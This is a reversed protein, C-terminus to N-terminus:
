IHHRKDIDIYSVCTFGNKFTYEIKGEDYVVGREVLKMFYEDNFESKENISDLIKMLDMNSENLEFVAKDDKLRLLMRMFADKIKPEQQRKARCPNYGKIRCDRGSTARCRWVSIKESRGGGTLVATRRTVPQGCLGCFLRNSIVSVSSHSQRYRRDSVTSIEFRRKIEEQVANWEDRPIIAPHHNEIYYMPLQGKNEKQKNTMFDVKYSKQMLVDGCYKENRLMHMVSSKGWNVTGRGTIIGESKLESAILKMGKGKMYERYVRRVTQAEQENIILNGHEDKDYGLLFNVPCRPLGEQFRKRIGWKVNESLNRSEEQAITSLITLILENKSDLTHLKEKEFYVGVPPKLSKLQRIHELCDITNRAFRSISKTFILDIKGNKCDNIMKLFESREGTSTGSKGCDAYIGAFYWNPNSEILKKYYVSQLEFSSLQGEEDTSVRCYACVRKKSANPSMNDSIRQRHVSIQVVKEQNDKM